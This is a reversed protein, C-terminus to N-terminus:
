YTYKNYETILEVLILRPVFNCPGNLQNIKAEETSSSQALISRTKIDSLWTTAELGLHLRM